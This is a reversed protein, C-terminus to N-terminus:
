QGQRRIKYYKAYHSLYNDAIDCLADSLSIYIHTIRFFAVPPYPYRNSLNQLSPPMSLCQPHPLSLVQIDKANDCHLPRCLDYFM